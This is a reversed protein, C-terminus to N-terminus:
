QVQWVHAVPKAEDAFLELVYLFGRERDYAVAGIRCKRQDGLGCNIDTDGPWSLFLNQDIDLTAYPQPEHAQITGDLVAALDTPDYFLIQADFRSSWWGKSEVEYGTCTPFDDVCSSGDSSRYCRPEDEGPLPIHVCPVGDGAPSSYGYWWYDGGGKVGAFIVASKTGATLWAGGAWDDSDHYYDLKHDGGAYSYALLEHTTLVTGSVPPSGDLWPGYAFINPGMGSWGGDRYRGTALKAGGLHTDAWTTPIDFIYDNVRYLREVTTEGIWWAGQTNPASLTIDCWAHSPTQSPSGEDQHHAGWAMYLKSSTQGTQAPLYQLGVRQMEVLDDFLGGRVDAFGQIIGAYNLDALNTSSIPIPISIESVHNVVDHGTGFLSGPYGDGDGGPDGNPRYTLAQGSYEWTMTAPTGPEMDPLRFAGLYTLDGPQILDGSSGAQITITLDDNATHAGSCNSAAVQVTKSGTTEWQYSASATNQGSQPAPTWTYAIPTTANTPTSAANFAYTTGTVGSTPGSITVDTLPIACAPPTAAYNRLILPLYIRYTSKVRINITHPTTDSGGCNEVTLTITKTGTSAWTYSVIAGSGEDPAPTWTYTIPTSANSPIIAATFAYLTNTYGTTPGTITADTIGVCTTGGKWRNYFVNLLPVFEATAKQNGAATPHSGGGSGGWYASYDNSVTQTHQVTNTLWRHHNGDAWGEDNTDPDDTRTSGGNSTLVNYFDFVAVNDHAYSTLWDNVLWDNLARANAAHTADTESEMQPPATIVVFLKDQRTAFYTLLDNYIGKANAVTHYESWSPEGRLPNPDGTPPDTPGELYSNPYCSKFMIIQNEGGPDTPLRSYWSNQGYETYLATTYTIHNPGVFWNYWHGIDTHDGVTEYGLDADDPGWGYNTDSVFYNADRLALGLGGDDDALWNEGCSHH